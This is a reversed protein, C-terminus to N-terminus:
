TLVTVRGQNQRAPVLIWLGVGQAAAMILVLVAAQAASVPNQGGLPRCRWLDLGLKLQFPPHQERSAPFCWARQTALQVVRPLRQLRVWMWRGEWGKHARGEGMAASMGVQSMLHHLFSMRISGQLALTIWHGAKLMSQRRWQPDM